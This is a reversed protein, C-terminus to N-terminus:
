ASGANSGRAALSVFRMSKEIMGLGSPCMRMTAWSSLRPLPADPAATWFMFRINPNGSSAPSDTHGASKLNREINAVWRSQWLEPCCSEVVHYFRRWRWVLRPLIEEFTLLNGLTFPPSRRLRRDLRFFVAGVVRLRREQVGFRGRKEALSGAHFGLKSDEVDESDDGYDDHRDSEDSGKVGEPFVGVARRWPRRLRRM